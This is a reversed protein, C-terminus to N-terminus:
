VDEQLPKFVTDMHGYQKLAASLVIERNASSKAVGWAELYADVAERYCTVERKYKDSLSKEYQRM